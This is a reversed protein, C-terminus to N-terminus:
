LKTLKGKIEFTKDTRQYRVNVKYFYIGQQYINLQDAYFTITENQNTPSVDMIQKSITEGFSNFVELDVTYEKLISNQILVNLENQIPNPYVSVEVAFGTNLEIKKTNGVGFIDWTTVEITNYGPKLDSLRLNATVWKASSTKMKLSDNLIIPNLYDDNVIAKTEKGITQDNLLIGHDDIFDLQLDITTSYYNRLPDLSPTIMIQPAQNPVEEFDGGLTFNSNGGLADRGESNAYFQIQTAGYSSSIEVPMALEITFYGNIVQTQAKIVQKSNSIYPMKVQGGYGLTHKNEGNDYMIVDVLGTFTSDITGNLTEIHGSFLFVQGPNLTDITTEIKVHDLSDLV